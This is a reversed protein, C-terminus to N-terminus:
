GNAISLANDQEATFMATIQSDQSQLTAIAADATAMQATISSQLNNVYTQDASIQTQLNTISTGLSNTESVILGTTPDTVNTLATSAAGLFGTNGSVSGVFSMVNNLSTSAASEFTSADFQLHGNQDFSIGIDTLNTVSGSSTSNYNALSSLTNSLGDLVSQGALAGGNQGRNKTVEDVAANYATVFSSIANEVGTASQAVTVSATGTTQATVTLGTSIDLTRSTSTAPTAPQGNVQYQVYAGASLSTLLNQTGDNLQITTPAYQTGQVSLEYNPSTSGGVNVVTAQVNAGSANIASVLSNLNNSAPSLSYNTGNVTLTFASSTSINGSSPDAVTPLTSNSITNTQAGLNTVDVSYTGALAGTSVDASLVTGNSVSPALSASAASDITGLATQISQFDNGITQLETQQSTLTGEENQLQTMPLSAISVARTIESQLQTAYTSSGNFGPTSTSSSSSSTTGM